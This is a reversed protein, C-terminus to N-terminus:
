SRGESRHPSRISVVFGAGIAAVYEFRGESRHPSRISVLISKSRRGQNDM